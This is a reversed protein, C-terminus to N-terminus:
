PEVPHDAAQWGSTGGLVNVAHFGAAALADAARASRGGSRCIVYLPEAKDQAALWADDPSLSALPKNIAGPVHGSAFEAPTRVDVLPVGSAHEIAFAAIEVDARTGASAVAAGETGVPLDASSPMSCALTVFLYLM